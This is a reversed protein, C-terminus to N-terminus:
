NNDASQDITAGPELISKSVSGLIQQVQELSIEIMSGPEVNGSLM